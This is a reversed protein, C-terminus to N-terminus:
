RCGGDRGAVTPPPPWWASPRATRAAGPCGASASGCRGARDRQEDGRMTRLAVGADVKQVAPCSGPAAPAGASWARMRRGEPRAPDDRVRVLEARELGREAAGAERQLQSNGSSRRRRSRPGPALATGVRQVAGGRDRGRQGARQRGGRVASVTVEGSMCSRARNRPVWAATSVTSSSRNTLRITTPAATIRSAARISTARRWPSSAMSRARPPDSHCTAPSISRPATTAAPGPTSIPAPRATATSGRRRRGRGPSAAPRSRWRQGRQGPGGTM